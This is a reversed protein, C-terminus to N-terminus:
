YGAWARLERFTGTFEIVNDFFTNDANWGQDVVFLRGDQIHSFWDHSAAWNLQSTTM